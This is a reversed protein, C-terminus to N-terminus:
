RAWSFASLPNICDGKACYSAPMVTIGLGAAAMEMEVVALFYRLLYRDLM